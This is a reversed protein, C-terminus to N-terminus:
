AAAERPQILSRAVVLAYFLGSSLVLAFDPPYGTFLRYVAVGVWVVSCGGSYLSLGLWFRRTKNKKADKSGTPQWGMRQKRLIDYIAFVHAWGYMLRASWAELRYPSRHWMPFILTTYVVSPLVWLLNKVKLMQPDALVLMIPLLPSFLTFVATHIYYFFGSIYCLRSSFKIPADWFKKSGLLSMSGSCWRYQQNFFAGASDPCVGTSLAVPVYKLDWGLGRLDFGTHVDESHEILTTGGNDELAARRYIACSGVCIAGGSNQRSVQVSRYFLEQVAGAGREIWNQSDLVRFYQPSQIIGIREDAELYPLLEELLDARPTFDADLILIYTGESNGFGYHLNGAKKFWGRNPRTGYRFGFDAAMAKLEPSAGDDLVYPVCIGPYRDALKRVHTWTNHLVEIPEGCVPLFVDVSPYVDCQWNRVLRQHQEFDFGRSFGNVRLSILYYVFTFVLPPAFIWMLPNSQALSVQSITLCGFSVISAVTLIWLRRQLYSYKERQNPPLPLLGLPAQAGRVRRRAGQPRRAGDVQTERATRL